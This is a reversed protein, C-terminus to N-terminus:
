ANCTDIQYYYGHGRTETDFSFECIENYCSGDFCLVYMQYDYAFTKITEAQCSADEADSEDDWKHLEREEYEECEGTYYYRTFGGPITYSAIKRRHKKVIRYEAFHYKKKGDKVRYSVLEERVPNEFEERSLCFDIGKKKCRSKIYGFFEAVTVNHRHLEVMNAPM